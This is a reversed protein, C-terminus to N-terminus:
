IFIHSYEMGMPDFYREEQYTGFWVKINLTGFRTIALSEGYDIPHTKSNFNLIGASIWLKQKRRNQRTGPTIRGKFLIRVGGVTALENLLCNDKDFFTFKKSYTLAIQDVCYQTLNSIMAILAKHKSRMNALEYAIIKAYLIADKFFFSILLINSIRLYYINRKHWFM